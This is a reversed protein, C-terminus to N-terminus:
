PWCTIFTLCQKSLFTNEICVYLIFFALFCPEPAVRIFVHKYGLLLEWWCHNCYGHKLFTGIQRSKEITMPVFAPSWFSRKLICLIMVPLVFITIYNHIQLNKKLCVICIENKVVLSPPGKIAHVLGYSSVISEFRKYHLM